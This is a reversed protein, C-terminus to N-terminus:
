KIPKVYSAEPPQGLSIPMLSSFVIVVVVVLHLHHIPFMGWLVEGNCKVM